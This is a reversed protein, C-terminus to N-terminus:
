TADDSTQILSDQLKQSHRGSEPEVDAVQEEDPVLFNGFNKGNKLRLTESVTFTDESNMEVNSAVEPVM